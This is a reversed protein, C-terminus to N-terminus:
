FKFKERKVYILISVVAIAIGIGLTFYSIIQTDNTLDVLLGGFLPGIAAMFYGITQSMASLSSAQQSDKTSNTIIAVVWAFCNSTGISMLMTGIFILVISEAVLLISLGIMLVLSSFLLIYSTEKMRKILIPLLFMGPLPILQFCAILLSIHDQSHNLSAVIQPLWTAYTYYLVSQLGMILTISWAYPSKLLQKIVPWALEPQKTDSAKNNVYDKKFFFWSVLALSAPVIWILMLFIWSFKIALFFAFGSTISAFLNQTCLYVSTFISKKDGAYEKIISPLLVNGFSIGLGIIITGLLLLYYNDASRLLSGIIILCVGGMMTKILGFRSIIFPIILSSSAFVLLPLTTILGFEASSIALDDIILNSIPGISVIPGRLFAATLVISFFLIILKKKNDM